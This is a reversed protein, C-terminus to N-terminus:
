HPHAESNLLEIKRKLEKYNADTKRPKEAEYLLLSKQWVTRAEAIKRLRFYVDGLHDWVTPDDEGRALETAKELWTRAEELRGARFLVWGLSDVFAANDGEGEISVVSGIRKQERDLDLAKRILREAEELNKGQDAWLYGLNNNATADNPDAQLILRLQEEAKAFDRMATYVNHLSDRIARVQEPQSFEKALAQAEAIALPYREAQTLVSIRNLRADFRTEEDAIGVAQDAEAIAEDAKGLIVLARSLYRRFLLHNTAQAQRLGQRCVEVVDEYKRATWLVQILGSYAAVEGQPNRFSGDLCRRYFFEAEALQHARAALVALLYRMQPHLGRHALTVQQAAPLLARILEPDERLATLMARAKAAAQADGTRPNGNADAKSLAEDLLNVAKGMDRQRYLSFLGRFIEATPSQDALTEYVKEASAEQGVAAYERALLLHLAVNFGDREAYKELAPAIERARGLQKLIASRLEYAESGQPQTQLYDDLHGLAKDPQGQAFYIRALNYNLRRTLEPHKAQAEGFIRLARDYQQVQICLHIIREYISAAEEGLEAHNANALELVTQPNDLIRVLETFSAVAQDYDQVEECLTALDYYLQVRLDVHEALGHCALARALATRAEKLRARNKLQRAYSAWTEYDGPDLDLTKRCAALADDSRGLAVYLPILVKYLPTAEPELHLAEEFTHTAEILRDEHQQVLGIAYLKLAERRALEERTPPQLPLLPALGGDLEPSQASVAAPSAALSVAWILVIQTLMPMKGIVEEELDSRRRRGGRRRPRVSDTM